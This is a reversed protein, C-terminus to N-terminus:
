TDRRAPGPAGAADHRGSIMNATTEHGAILLLMALSVVDHRDTAEVLQRSILDDGPEAAKRAVLDQLYAHLGALAAQRQQPPTSQRLLAETGSQFFEHDAYPVGLLHCIVLSPVPLSLAQVLDAPRPGAVLADICEDVIQQIRPRLAAMRRATFEGMVAGRARGHEPPDMSVMM